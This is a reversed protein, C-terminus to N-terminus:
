IKENKKQRETAEGGWLQRAAFTLRTSISSM